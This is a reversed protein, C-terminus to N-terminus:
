SAPTYDDRQWLFANESARLLTQKRFSARPAVDTRKWQKKEATNSLMVRDSTQSETIHRCPDSRHEREMKITWQLYLKWRCGILTYCTVWNINKSSLNSSFKLKKRPLNLIKVLNVLWNKRNVARPSQSIPTRNGILASETLLHWNEITIM